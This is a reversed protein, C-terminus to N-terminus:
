ELDTVTFIIGTTYNGPSNKVTMGDFLYRLAYTQETLQQPSDLLTAGSTDVAVPTREDPIAGIQVIQVLLQGEVFWNGTIQRQVSIRCAQDSNIRVTFANGLQIRDVYDAGPGGALHAFSITQSQSAGDVFDFTNVAGVPLRALMLLGALSGACRTAFRARRTIPSSM